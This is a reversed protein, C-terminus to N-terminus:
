KSIRTTQMLFNVSMKKVLVVLIMHLKTFGSLIHLLLTYEICYRHTSSVTTLYVPYLLLTYEICFRPTSSVTAIHVLYLLSTYQMCFCHTSSVTALHVRYLLSTYEIYYGLVGQKQM